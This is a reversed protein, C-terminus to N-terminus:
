FGPWRRTRRRPIARRIPWCWSGRRSRPRWTLSGPMSCPPGCAPWNSAPSACSHKLETFTLMRRRTARECPRAGPQTAQPRPAKQERGARARIYNLFNKQNRISATKPGGSFDETIKGAETVTIEIKHHDLYDCAKKLNQMARKTKPHRAAQLIQEFVLESTKQPM